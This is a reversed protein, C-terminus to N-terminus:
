IEVKMLGISGLSLLISTVRHNNHYLNACFSIPRHLCGSTEIRRQWFLIIYRIHFFGDPHLPFSTSASFLRWSSSLISPHALDHTIWFNMQMVAETFGPAKFNSFAVVPPTWYFLHEQFNQLIALFPSTDSDSVPKRSVTKRFKQSCKKWLVSGPSQKQHIPKITM